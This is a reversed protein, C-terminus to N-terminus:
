EGKELDSKEKNSLNVLGQQKLYNIMNYMYQQQEKTLM